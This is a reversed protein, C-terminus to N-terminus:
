WKLELKENENKDANFVEIGCKCDFCATKAAINCACLTCHEDLRIATYWGDKKANTSCYKCDNCILRRNTITEQQEETLMGFENKVANAIGKAIKSKEKWIRGILEKM